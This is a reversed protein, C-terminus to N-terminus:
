TLIPGSDQALTDQLVLNKDPFPQNFSPQTPSRFQHLLPDQCLGLIRMSEAHKICLDKGALERFLM